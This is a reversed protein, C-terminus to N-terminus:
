SIMYWIYMEYWILYINKINSYFINLYIKDVDNFYAEHHKTARLVLWIKSIQIFFLIIELSKLYGRSLVGRRTSEVNTQICVNLFLLGRRFWNKVISLKGIFFKCDKPAFNGYFCCCYFYCRYHYCRVGLYSSHRPWVLLSHDLNIMFVISVIEMKQDPVICQSFKHEFDNEFLNQM